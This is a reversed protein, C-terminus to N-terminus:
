QSHPKVADLPPARLFFKESRSSPTCRISFFLTGQNALSRKPMGKGVLGKKRTESRNGRNERVGTEQFGSNRSSGSLNPCKLTAAAGTASRPAAQTLSPAAPDRPRRGGRGAAGGASPRKPTATRHCESHLTSLSTSQQESEEYSWTTPYASRHTNMRQMQPRQKKKGRPLVMSVRATERAIDDDDLPGSNRPRSADVCPRFAM